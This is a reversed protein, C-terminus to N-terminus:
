YVCLKKKFTLVKRRGNALLNKDFVFLEKQIEKLKVNLLKNSVLFCEEALSKWLAKLYITFGEFHESLAERVMKLTSSPHEDFHCFFVLIILFYINKKATSRNAKKKLARGTM